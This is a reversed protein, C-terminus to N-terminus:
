RRRPAPALASPALRIGRSAGRRSGAARQTLWGFLLGITAWMLVQTGLSAMRFQWLVVAPFREPVEDIVPLLLQAPIVIALYAAMATLAAFWGGHRRALRHWLMAAGILASLSIVIMLFYMATRDGITDPQGVSPPNAPYKLSPVLYIAVFGAAALLAAVARPSLRGVRGDVAAFVLAFLGGFAACYVVVGTFLGFSAQVSRSVLEPEEVHTMGAAADKRAEAQHLGTEFAIARDVLPEGFVKSFGFALLGAVIGVLMGRILLTRVM